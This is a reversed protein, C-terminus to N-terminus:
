TCVARKQIQLIRLERQRTELSVTHMNGLFSVSRRRHLSYSIHRRLRYLYIILGQLITCTEDLMSSVTGVASSQQSVPM